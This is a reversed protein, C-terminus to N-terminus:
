SLGPHGILNETQVHKGINKSYVPVLVNVLREAALLGVCLLVLGQLAANGKPWVYPLLLTVKRGFGRWASPLSSSSSPSSSHQIDVNAVGRKGEGGSKVPVDAM